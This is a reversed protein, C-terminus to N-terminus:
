GGDGFDGFLVSVFHLDALYVDVFLAFQCGGEADHANGREDDDLFALDHIGHGSNTRFVLNDVHEALRM